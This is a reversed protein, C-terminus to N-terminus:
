SKTLNVYAVDENVLYHYYRFYHMCVYMCYYVCHVM